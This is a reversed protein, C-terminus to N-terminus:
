FIRSPEPLLSKAPTPPSFKPQNYTIHVSLTIVQCHRVPATRVALPPKPNGANKRKAPMMATRQNRSRPAGLLRREPPGSARGPPRVMHHVSGKGGIGLNALDGPMGVASTALAFPAYAASILPAFPLLLPSPGLASGLLGAVGMIGAGWATARPHKM